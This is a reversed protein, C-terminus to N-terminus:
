EDKKSEQSKAPAQQAQTPAQAERPERDVSSQDVITATVEFSQDADLFEQSMVDVKFTYKGPVKPVRFQIKVKGSKQAVNAVMMPWATILRQQLPLARFEELDQEDCKQLVGETNISLAKSLDGDGEHRKGSVIFWWGERYTQLGIQPPIGQKQFMAVKQRTFAEAHLRTLELSVSVVDGTIIETEGPTEISTDKIELRPVTGYTKTMVNNFWETQGHECGIKFMAVTEVVTAALKTSRLSVTTRLTAELMMAIRQRFAMAGGFYSKDILDKSGAQVSFILNSISKTLQIHNLMDTSSRPADQLIYLTYPVKM